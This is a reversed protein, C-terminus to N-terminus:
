NIWEKRVTDYIAGNADQYEKNKSYTFKFCKNGNIYVVSKNGYLMAYREREGAKDFATKMEASKKMTRRNEIFDWVMMIFGGVSIVYCWAPAGSQRLIWFLIIYKIM